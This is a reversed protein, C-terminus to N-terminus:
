FSLERTNNARNTEDTIHSQIQAVYVSREWPIMNNIETLSYNHFYNMQFNQRYFFELTLHNFFFDIFAFIGRISVTRTQGDSTKYEPLFEVYPLSDFYNIISKFQKTSLNQVFEIIEQEPKEKCNIITKESHIQHICSAIFAYISESNVNYEPYKLIHNVTPKNMVLILKENLKITSNTTPKNLIINNLININFHVREKTVPCTITFEEYEGLSKARLLLFAHELDSISYEETNFDDFCSSVINVLTKIISEKNQSDKVMLLSKEEMVVMPRFCVSKGSILNECYRPFSNLILNKLTM